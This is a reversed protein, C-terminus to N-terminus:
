IHKFEKPIGHREMMDLRDLYEPVAAGDTVYRYISRAGVGLAPAAAEPTMLGLAALRDKLPKPKKM